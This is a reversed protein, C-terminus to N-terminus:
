KSAHALSVAPSANRSSCTLNVSPASWEPCSLTPVPQLMSPPISEAIATSGVQDIPRYTQFSRFLPNGITCCVLAIHQSFLSLCPHTSPKGCRSLFDLLILGSSLYKPSYWGRYLRLTTLVKSLARAPWACIGHM